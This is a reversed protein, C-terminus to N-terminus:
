FYIATFDVIKQHKCRGRLSCLESLPGKIYSATPTPVGLEEVRRLRLEVALSSLSSIDGFQQYQPGYAEKPWTERSM